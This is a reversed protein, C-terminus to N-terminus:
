VSDFTYNWDYFQLFAYYAKSSESLASKGLPTQQQSLKTDIARAFSLIFKFCLM